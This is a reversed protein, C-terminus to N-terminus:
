FMKSVDTAIRNEAHTGTSMLTRAESTHIFLNNGSNMPTGWCVSDTSLPLRGSRRGEKEKKERQKELKEQAKRLDKLKKKITSRDSQSSVGLAQLAMHSPNLLFKWIYGTSAWNSWYSVKLKDSDLHLLQQGDVAKATFEQTYQDMNMGMLWHCVQQNTWESVPRNQWQYDKGSAVPEDDLTQLYVFVALEFPYRFIGFCRPFNTKMM